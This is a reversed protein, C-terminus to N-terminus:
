QRLHAIHLVNLLHNGVAPHALPILALEPIPQDDCATSEGRDIAPLFFISFYLVLHNVNATAWPMILVSQNDKVNSIFPHGTGGRASVVPRGVFYAAGSRPFWPNLRHFGIRM